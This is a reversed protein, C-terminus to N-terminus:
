QGLLGGSYMSPQTVSAQYLAQEAATMPRNTIPQGSLMLNRASEAARMTRATAGRRGAEAAGFLGLGLAPNMFGVTGLGATSFFGRPSFKGLFRMANTTFDGRAVTEIAKQEEKTFTRMRAQDKALARFQIRLANEMGSASYNPASLEAKRILEDITSAKAQKSWLSRANNFADITQQAAGKGLSIDVNPNLSSVYDDINNKIIGAFNRESPNNSSGLNVARKRISELEGLDINKGQLKNIDRVLMSAAPENPAYLAYDDSSRNINQILRQTSQPKMYVDQSRALKYAEDATQKVSEPTLSTRQTTLRSLLPSILAAGAGGAAGGLAAGSAVDTDRGTAELAGLAAGEAVGAGIRGATTAPAAIQGLLGAVRPAGAMRAGTALAGAPGGALILPAAGAIGLPIKATLPVNEEAQRSRAREQQLAQEYNRGGGLSNMYAALKDAYGLTAFNATWRAADDLAQLASSPQSPASAAPAPAAAQQGGTPAPAATMQRIASSIQEDTMNAPFSVLGQGPVDIVQDM